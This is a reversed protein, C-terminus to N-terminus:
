QRPATNLKKWGCIAFFLYWFMYSNYLSGSFMGAIAYQIYIIGLWGWPNNEYMIIRLAKIAAYIYLILFLFGGVLGTALFAELIINHPYGVGPLELGYGFIPHKAILEIATQYLEPRQVFRSSDFDNATSSFREILSSGSDLAFSLALNAFVILMIIVGMKKWVNGKSKQIFIRILYLIFCFSVAIVPGRSSAFFLLILGIFSFLIYLNQTIKNNSDQQNLLIYLSILLLSGGQHGLSIPNLAERALRGQAVFTGSAQEQLILPIALISAIALLLWSLYLYKQSHKFDLFIFTIGPILCMCFWFLLYESPERFIDQYVVDHVLRLSYFFIYTFVFYLLSIKGPNSTKQHNNHNIKTLFVLISLLFIFARYPLTLLRSSSGDYIFSAIIGYGFLAISFLLIKLKLYFPSSLISTHINM